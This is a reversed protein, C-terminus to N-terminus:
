EPKFGIRQRVVEPLQKLTEQLQQLLTDHHRLISM